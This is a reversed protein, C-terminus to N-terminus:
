ITSINDIIKYQLNIIAILHFTLFINYKANTKKFKNSSSTDVNSNEIKYLDSVIAAVGTFVSRERLTSM